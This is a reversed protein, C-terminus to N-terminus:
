MFAARASTLSNIMIEMEEETGISIRLWDDLRPVPFYRVYIRQQLLRRYLAEAHAFRPRCLVFNAQSPIVEFGCRELQGAFRDRTQRIRNVITRLYAQDHLAALAIRQSMGNLNYSDKCKDLAAIFRDDAFAYGVRAGGLAYSKSFTRLVMLNAYADILRVASQDPEAFDMYAEDIVVLGRYNKLLAEITEVPLVLGTPNNPNVLFIAQAQEGARLLRDTDVTFDGNAPVFECAVRHMDAATKYLSYTPYPMAIKSNEDLCAKFLLSIIEDSGNGCFVQSEKVGYVSALASRLERSASDPYQRLLRGDFERMAEIVRPSPPYANENQNLKVVSGAEPQEGPVYSVLERIHKKIMAM